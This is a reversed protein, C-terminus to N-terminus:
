ETWRKALMYEDDASLMPFKQIEQLYRRLGADSSLTPLAHTNAM